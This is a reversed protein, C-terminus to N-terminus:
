TSASGRSQAIVTDIESDPVKLKELVVRALQLSAELTEEVVLTAGYEYFTQVSPSDHARVVVTLEPWHKRITSLIACAATLDDVTILAASAHEVDLKRWLDARRADGYYVPLRQDRMAGVRQSENDIAVYDIHDRELVEGLVRGMRGFGAIIVHGARGHESFGALGSSPSFWEEMSVALRHAAGSLAPTAMMSLAAVIMFFQGNASPILGSAMAMSVIMFAFEGGQGLLLGAELAKPWSLGFPKALIAIVVAKLMFLGVVSALLWWPNNVFAKPDTVMGVSIFFVGLFLGKLPEIVSEVEHRYETESLLLGALFAGLALSLGSAYTIAAAGIVIFLVVAMFWEARHSFGLSKFLPRLLMRGCFYIIGIALLAKGLAEAVSLSISVDGGGASLAGLLILIPVVAIDQMLLISFCTTGVPSSFRHQERLLQMVIATSSLALCAGVLVSAELSNGFQTAVWMILVTTILIQLGGLGLVLRRMAWLRAFSLELGITFLLLMVGFEALTRVWDLDTIAIYTVAPIDEALLAIGHPGIMLGCFLYALVPSFKLRHLLPVFLGTIALIVLAEKFYFGAHGDM